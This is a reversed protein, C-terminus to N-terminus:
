ASRKQENTVGEIYLKLNNIITGMLADMRNGTFTNESESISFSEISGKAVIDLLGKCLLESNPYYHRHPNNTNLGEILIWNRKDTTITFREDLKFHKSTNTM